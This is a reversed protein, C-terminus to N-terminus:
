AAGPCEPCRGPFRQCKAARSLYSRVRNWLKDLEGRRDRLTAAANLARSMISQHHQRARELEEPLGVAIFDDGYALGFLISGPYLPLEARVGYIHRVGEPGRPAPAVSPGHHVNPLDALWGHGARLLVAEEASTVVVGGEYWSLGFTRYGLVAALGLPVRFLNVPFKSTLGRECSWLSM